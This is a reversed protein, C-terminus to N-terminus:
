VGSRIRYGIEVLTLERRISILVHRKVHRRSKGLSSLPSQTNTYRQNIARGDIGVICNLVRLSSDGARQVLSDGNPKALDRNTRSIIWDGFRPIGEYM